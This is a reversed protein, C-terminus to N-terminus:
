LHFNVIVSCVQFSYLFFMLYITYKLMMMMIMQINDFNIYVLNHVSKSFLLNVFGIM